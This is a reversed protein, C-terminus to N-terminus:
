EISNYIDKLEHIVRIIEREADVNGWLTKQVKSMIVEKSRAEKHMQNLEGAIYHGVGTLDVTYPPSFAVACHSYDFYKVAEIGPIPALVIDLPTDDPLISTYAVAKIKRAEEHVGFYNSKVVKKRLPASSPNVIFSQAKKRAKRSNKVFIDIDRAPKRAAWAWLCGAAIAPKHKKWDHLICCAANMQEKVIPDVLHERYM